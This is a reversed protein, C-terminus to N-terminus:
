TTDSRDEAEGSGEPSDRGKESGRENLYILLGALMMIIGIVVMLEILSFAHRSGSSIEIKM